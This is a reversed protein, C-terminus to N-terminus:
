KPASKPEVAPTTKLEVAPPVTKVKPTLEETAWSRKLLEEAVPGSVEVTDGEHTAELGLRKADDTGINLILKLKM